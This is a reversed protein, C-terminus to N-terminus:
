VKYEESSNNGINLELVKKVQKKKITNQELQLM